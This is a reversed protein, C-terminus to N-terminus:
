QEWSETAIATSVDHPRRSDMGEQSPAKRHPHIVQPSADRTPGLSLRAALRPPLMALTADFDSVDSGAATKASKVGEVVKVGMEDIRLIIYM